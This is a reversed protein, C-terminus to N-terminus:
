DKARLLIALQFILQKCQEFCWFWILFYHSLLNFMGLHLVMKKLLFVNVAFALTIPFHRFKTSVVCCLCFIYWLYSELKWLHEASKSILIWRSIVEENSTTLDGSRLTWLSISSWIKIMTSLNWWLVNKVVM